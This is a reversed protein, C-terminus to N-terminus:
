IVLDGLEFVVLHHGELPLCGLVNTVADGALKLHVAEGGEGESVAVEVSTGLLILGKCLIGGRFILLLRGQHLIGLNTVESDLESLDAAGFHGDQGLLYGINVIPVPDGESSPVRALPVCRPSLVDGTVSIDGAGAEADATDSDAPAELGHELLLDVENGLLMHAGRVSDLAQALAILARGLEESPSRPQHADDAVVEEEAGDDLEQGPDGEHAPEEGADDLEGGDDEGDDPGGHDVEEDESDGPEEESGDQAGEEQGPDGDEDENHVHSRGHVGLLDSGVTLRAL